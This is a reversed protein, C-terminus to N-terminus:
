GLTTLVELSVREASELAAEMGRASQGTHEGCFHLREHPKALSAAFRTVQGPQYIAWDGAAFPDLAWSHSAAVELQGKAAPRLREIEAIVAAGAAELGMRDVYQANLGRAWATLSTVDEDTPGFRQALVMGAIGDTWMTPHLGDEKWYAKKAVLHFQTIPIYGLSQIADLQVPPPLPDIAVHRLTSYPLSSVCAKASYSTGDSCRVTVGDARTDIAVVRKGMLRDGKLKGAMAIPLKQNGGKFAGILPLAAPKQPAAAAPAGSPPTMQAGSRSFAPLSGRNVALWHDSYAQMLLSVDRSTTGYAINTDYGLRIMEDTAGKSVLFEHVPIDYAANEPSAWAGLDKFPMHARFMADGWAWPPLKKQEGTFPNRPHTPWAAIPIHEGRVYLEQGGHKLLRPALNVIEVGYKQGAAIMRGYAQAITNGGAEPHGPVEFFTLVRGGIHKARGELVLVSLGNEELTLATDLGSLGAGIVIVDIPRAAQTWAHRPALAAGSALAAATVFHRRNMRM